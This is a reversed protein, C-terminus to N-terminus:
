NVTREGTADQVCRGDLWTVSYLLQTHKGSLVTHTSDERCPPRLYQVMRDRSISLTQINIKAFHQSRGLSDSNLYATERAASLAPKKIRDEVFVNIYYRTM